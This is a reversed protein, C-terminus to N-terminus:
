YMQAWSRQKTRSPTSLGAFANTVACSSYSFNANGLIDTTGQVMVAGFVNLTGNAKFNGKVLILGDYAFNGNITLDGNVILVGQGRGGNVSLAGSAYVIPYYNTCGAIYGGSRLSEGWNTTTMTCTTSTGSPSPNAGNATVNAKAVLSAWTETGFTNYTSLNGTNPDSNSSGNVAQSAPKQVSLTSAPNVSVALTDNSSTCGSWGPPLTNVGTINASGKISTAGFSTITAASKLSATSISVLMSVQRQTELRSSGGKTRGVSVVLFSRSNLRMVSVSATDGDAVVVKGSDIAGNAMQNRISTWNAVQQNLGYEAVALARQEQQQNHAVRLEEMSGMIAGTSLFTLVIMAVLVLVLASGRRARSKRRGCGRLRAPRTTHTVQDGSM